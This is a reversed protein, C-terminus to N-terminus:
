KKKVFCMKQFFVGIRKEYKNKENDKGGNDLFLEPYKLHKKQSFLETPLTYGQGL